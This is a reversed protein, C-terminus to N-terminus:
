ECNVLLGSKDGKWKGWFIMFLINLFLGESNICMLYVAFICLLYLKGYPFHKKMGIWTMIVFFLTFIIGARISFSAMGNSINVIRYQALIDRINEMYMGHGWIPSQLALYYGYFTDNYRTAASSQGTYMGAFKDSVIGLQNEVVLLVVVAVVIIIKSKLHKEHRNTKLITAIFILGLCLYGTTSQTTLITVVFVVLSFRYLTKNTRAFEDDSLLFLLAFNLFIQHAGPEVFLGANRHFVPINAWGITYYPTIIYSNAANTGNTILPLTKGLIAVWIFCILSLIAECLMIRTYKKKFSEFTMQSQMSVVFFVNVTWIIIDNFYFGNKYNIISTLVFGVTILAYLFISDKSLKWSGILLLVAAMLEMVAMLPMHLVQFYLSGMGLVAIIVSLWEKKARNIM